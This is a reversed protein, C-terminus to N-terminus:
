VNGFVGNLNDIIYIYAHTGLRMCTAIVGAEGKMSKRVAHRLVEPSYISDEM